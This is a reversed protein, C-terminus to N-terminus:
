NTSSVPFYNPIHSSTGVTTVNVTLTKQTAVSLVAYSIGSTVLSTVLKM